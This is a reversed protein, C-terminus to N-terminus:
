DVQIVLYNSVSWFATADTIKLLYGTGNPSLSYSNAPAPSLLKIKKGDIQLQNFNRIDVSTFADQSINGLNVKSKKLLNGGSVLGMNKLVKKSGVLYFGENIMKDQSSITKEQLENQTSLSEVSKRLEGISKKSDELQSRLSQLEEDKQNIQQKLLNIMKQLGEIKTGDKELKQELKKVRDKQRLLLEEFSQINNRIRERNNTVEKNETLFLTGEQINISDIMLSVEDLTSKM